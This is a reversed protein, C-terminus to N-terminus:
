EGIKYGKNKMCNNVIKKAKTIYDSITNPKKNLHNAIDKKRIQQLLMNIVTYYPDKLKSICDIYDKKEEEKDNRLLYSKSGQELIYMEDTYDLFSEDQKNSTKKKPLHDFNRWAEKFNNKLAEKLYTNINSIPECGFLPKLLKIVFQTNINKKDKEIEHILDSNEISIKEFENFKNYGFAFWKGQFFTLLAGRCHHRTRELNEKNKNIFNDLKIQNDFRNISLYYKPQNFLKAIAASILENKKDLDDFDPTAKYLWTECRKLKEDNQFLYDVDEKRLYGNWGPPEVFIPPKSESMVGSGWWYAWFELVNTNKQERYTLLFGYRLSLLM